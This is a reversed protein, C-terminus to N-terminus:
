PSDSLSEGAESPDSGSKGSSDAGGSSKGHRTPEDRNPRRGVEVNALRRALERRLQEDTLEAVKAIHEPIGRAKNEIEVSQRWARLATPVDKIGDKLIRELALAQLAQSAEIHRRAMEVSKEKEAEIRAKRIEVDWAEAREKWKWEKAVNGWSTTYGPRDPLSGYQEQYYQRYAETLTRNAGQPRYFRDFRDFWKTDEDPLRDWPNIDDRQEM